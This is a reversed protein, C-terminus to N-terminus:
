TAKGQFYLRLDLFAFYTFSFKDIEVKKEVVLLFIALM